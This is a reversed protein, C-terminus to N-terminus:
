KRSDILPPRHLSPDPPYYRQCATQHQRSGTRGLAPRRNTIAVAIAFGVFSADVPLAGCHLALGILIAGCPLVTQIVYTDLAGDVAVAINALDTVLPLANKSAPGVSVTRGAEDAQRLLALVANARFTLLVSIAVRPVLAYVIGAHLVALAVGIAGHAMAIKGGVGAHLAGQVGMALQSEDALAVGANGPAPQVRVAGRPFDAFVVGAPLTAPQVGVARRAYAVLLGEGAHLAGGLVVAIYTLQAYVLLAYGSALSVAVAGLSVYTGGLDAIVPGADLADIVAVAEGRFQGAAVVVDANGLADDIRVAGALVFHADVIV